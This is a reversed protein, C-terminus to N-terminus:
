NLFHNIIKNIAIRKVIHRMSFIIFTLMLYFASVILFGYYNEGVIEGLWLSVGVTLTIIALSLIAIMLIHYVMISSSNAIKKVTKLKILNIKTNAQEEIKEFLIEIKNEM